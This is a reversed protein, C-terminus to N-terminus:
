TYIKRLKVRASAMTKHWWAPRLDEEEESSAAFTWVAFADSCFIVVTTHLNFMNQCSSTTTKDYIGFEGFADGHSIQMSGSVTEKWKDLLLTDSLNLTINIFAHAKQWCLWHLTMHSQYDTLSSYVSLAVNGCSRSPTRSDGLTNIEFLLLDPIQVHSAGLCKCITKIAINRDCNM